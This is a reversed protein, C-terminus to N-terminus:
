HFFLEPLINYFHHRSLIATFNVAPIRPAKADTLGSIVIM